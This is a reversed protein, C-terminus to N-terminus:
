VLFCMVRGRRGDGLSEGDSWWVRDRRRWVQSGSGNFVLTSSGVFLTGVVLVLVDAPLHDDTSPTSSWPHHSRPSNRRPEKSCPPYTPPPRKPSLKSTLTYTPTPWNRRPLDLPSFILHRQRARRGPVPSAILFPVLTVEGDQYAAARYRRQLTCSIPGHRGPGTRIRLDSRFIFFRQLSLDYPPLDNPPPSRTRHSSVFFM